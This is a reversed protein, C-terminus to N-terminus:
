PQKTPAEGTKGRLLLLLLLLLLAWTPPKDFIAGV